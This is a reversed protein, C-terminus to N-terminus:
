NKDRDNEQCHWKLVGCLMAEGTLMYFCKRCKGLSSEVSEWCRNYGPCRLICHRLKYLDEFSYGGEMTLLATAEKIIFCNMYNLFSLHFYAQKLLFM